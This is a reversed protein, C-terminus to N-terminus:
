NRYSSSFVSANKTELHAQVEQKNTSTVLSGGEPWSFVSNIFNGNNDTARAHGYRIHHQGESDIIETRDLSQGRKLIVTKDESSLDIWLNIRYLETILENLDGELELINQDDSNTNSVQSKLYKIRALLRDKELLKIKLLELLEKEPPITRNFKYYSVKVRSAECTFDKLGRQYLGTSLEEAQSYEDNIYDREGMYCGYAKVRTYGCQHLRQKSLLDIVTAIFDGTREKPIDGENPHSGHIDIELIPPDQHKHKSNEIFWKFDDFANELKENIDATALFVKLALMLEESGEVIRVEYGLGEYYEKRNLVSRNSGEDFDLHQYILMPTKEVEDLM